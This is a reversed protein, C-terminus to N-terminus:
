DHQWLAKIFITCRTFISSHEQAEDNGNTQTAKDIYAVEDTQTAKDVYGPRYTVRTPDLQTVEEEHTTNQRTNETIQQSPRAKPKLPRGLLEMHTQLTADNINAKQLSLFSAVSFAANMITTDLWKARSKRGKYLIATSIADLLTPEEGDKFAKKMKRSLPHCSKDKKEVLSDSWEGTLTSVIMNKEHRTIVKNDLDNNFVVTSYRLVDRQEESFDDDEPTEWQPRAANRGSTSQRRAGSRGRRTATGRGRKNPRNSATAFATKRKKTKNQVETDPLISQNLSQSM